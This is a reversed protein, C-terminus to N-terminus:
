GDLPSVVCLGPRNLVHTPIMTTSVHTHGLLEQVTRIHPGRELGQTAFSHRLVHPSVRKAIGAKAEARQIGDEHM